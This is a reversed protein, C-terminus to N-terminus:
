SGSAAVLNGSRTTCCSRWGVDLPLPQLLELPLGKAARYGRARLSAGLKRVSEVMMPFPELGWAGLMLEISRLVARRTNRSLGNRQVRCTRIKRLPNSCFNGRSLRVRNARPPESSGCAAFGFRQDGKDRARTGRGLAREARELVAGHPLTGSAPGAGRERSSRTRGRAGRPEPIPTARPSTSVTRPSAASAPQEGQTEVFSTPDLQPQEEDLQRPEQALKEIARGLPSIRQKGARATGPGDEPPTRWLHNHIYINSRKRHQKVPADGHAHVAAPAGEHRGAHLHEERTM